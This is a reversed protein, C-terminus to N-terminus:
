RKGSYGWKGGERTVERSSLNGRFRGDPGLYQHLAACIDKDGDWDVNEDRTVRLLILELLPYVVAKGKVIECRRM